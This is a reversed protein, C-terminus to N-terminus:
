GGCWAFTAFAEFVNLAGLVLSLAMLIVAAALAWGRKQSGRSPRIKVLSLSAIGGSLLVTPGALPLWGLDRNANVCFEYIQQIAQLEREYAVDLGIAIVLAAAAVWLAAVTTKAIPSPKVLGGDDKM